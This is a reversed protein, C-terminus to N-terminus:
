DRRVPGFLEVVVDVKELIKRLAASVSNENLGLAEGIRSMPVRLGLLSASVAIIAAAVNAPRAGFGRRSMLRFLQLAMEKLEQARGRVEDDMRALEDVGRVIYKPVMQSPTAGASGLRKRVEMLAMTFRRRDIGAAEYAKITALDTIGWQKALTYIIAYVTERRPGRYGSVLMRRYVEVAEDVLNTPVPRPLKQALSRVEREAEIAPDSNTIQRQMQRMKLASLRASISVEEDNLDLGIDTALMRGGARAAEPRRWEAGLDVVYDAVVTGCETCVVYGRAEDLLLRSSGCQPCSRLEAAVPRQSM